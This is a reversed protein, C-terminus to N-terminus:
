LKLGAGVFLLSVEMKILLISRETKEATHSAYIPDSDLGALAFIYFWTELIFYFPSPAHSLHYLV